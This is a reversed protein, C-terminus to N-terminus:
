VVMSEARVGHRLRELSLPGLDLTPPTGTILQALYEGVAPAQQFGHGSFGSAYLFRTPTDAEGILANHDPSMEYLGSWSTQVPLDALLPLRRTVSAAVQDLDDQPAGFILGPGERHVYFGTTFDITLPLAAPLGGDAATYHVFRREGVVPLDLGVMAAIERSWPGAACIVSPTAITRRRTEVAVVRGGRVRIGLVEEGQHFRVGRRAAAGAYGTVVAEPTAHGDRPSFTATVLDDTVLGPVLAAVEAPALEINALGLDRQLAIARRFAQADANNDLLFLYGTQHFAIDVGTLDAFTEFETLSRLGIRVNLEDSFQTRIGGAAKSTSGSGLSDREVVTVDLLGLEALHYATSTGIAGGGVVVVEASEQTM